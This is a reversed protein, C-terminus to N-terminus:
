PAKPPLRAEIRAALSKYWEDRWAEGALLRLKTVDERTFGFPQGHLAIAAHEHRAKITWVEGSPTVCVMDDGYEGCSGRSFSYPCAWEEATLAPKIPESM